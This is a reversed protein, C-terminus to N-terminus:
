TNGSTALYGLTASGAWPSAAAEEEAANGIVAAFMVVIAILNHLKM